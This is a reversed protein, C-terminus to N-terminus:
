NFGIFLPPQIDYFLRLYHDMSTISNNESPQSLSDHVMQTVITMWQMLDNTNIVIINLPVKDEEMHTM